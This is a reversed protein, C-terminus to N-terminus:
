VFLVASNGWGWVEYMSLGALVYELGSWYHWAGEYVERKHVKCQVCSTKVFLLQNFHLIQLQQKTESCKIM